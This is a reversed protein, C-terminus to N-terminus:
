APRKGKPLAAVVAQYSADVLEIVEDDPLTGDLRVANWGYRGIYASVTVAFPYRDRLERAEEDTRV